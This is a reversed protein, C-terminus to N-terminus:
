DITTTLTRDLTLKKQIFILSKKFLIQNSLALFLALIIVDEFIIPKQNDKFICKKVCAAFPSHM